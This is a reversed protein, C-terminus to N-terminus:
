VPGRCVAGGGGGIDYLGGAYLGGELIMCAGGELGGELIM